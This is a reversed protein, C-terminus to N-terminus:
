SDTRANHLQDCKTRLHNLKEELIDTIVKRKQMATQESSNLRDRVDTLEFPEGIYVTVRQGIHPIYPETNPLVSDMGNVYFPLILPSQECEAIIRGIGWKIRRAKHELNIGAEPFVHVWGNANLREIAFDM